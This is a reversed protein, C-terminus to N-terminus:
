WIKQAFTDLEETVCWIVGFLNVHAYKLVWYKGNLM